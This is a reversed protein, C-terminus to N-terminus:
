RASSMLFLRVKNAPSLAPATGVLYRVMGTQNSGVAAQDLAAELEHADSSDANTKTLEVVVYGLSDMLVNTTKWGYGVDIQGTTNSSNDYPGKWRAVQGNNYLTAGTSTGDDNLQYDTIQIATQLHDIQGPLARVDSVFSTIMTRLSNISGLTAPTDAKGLQQTVAPVVMAALVAVIAVTVLVEPLTFGSRRNRGKFM